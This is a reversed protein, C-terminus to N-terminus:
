GRFSERLSASSLLSLFSMIPIYLHHHTWIFHVTTWRKLGWYLSLSEFYTCIIQCCSPDQRMGTIPEQNLFRTRFFCLQGTISLPFPLLPGELSDRFTSSETIPILTMESSWCWRISLIFHVKGRHGQCKYALDATLYLGLCLFNHQSYIEVVWCCLPEFYFYFEIIYSYIFIM